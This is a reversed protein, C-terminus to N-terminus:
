DLYKDAVESIRISAEKYQKEINHKKRGLMKATTGFDFGLEDVLYVIMSQGPTLFNTMRIFEIPIQEENEM